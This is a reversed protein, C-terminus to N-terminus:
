WHKGRKPPELAVEPAIEPVVIDQARDGCQGVVATPRIEEALLQEVRQTDDLAAILANFVHDAIPRAFEASHLECSGVIELVRDIKVAIAAAVQDVANRVCESRRCIEQDCKAPLSALWPQLFNADRGIQIPLLGVETDLM